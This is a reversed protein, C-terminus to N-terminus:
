ARDNDERCEDFSQPSAKVGVDVRLGDEPVMPDLDFRFLEAEGPALAKDTAAKALEM